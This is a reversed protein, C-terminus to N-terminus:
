ICENKENLFDLMKDKYQECCKVIITIIRVIVINNLVSMSNCLELCQALSRVYIM